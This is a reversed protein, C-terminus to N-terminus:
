YKSSYIGWGYSIFAIIFSFAMLLSYIAMQTSVFIAGNIGASLIALGGILSAFIWSRDKQSISRFILSLASLLLFIGVIIHLALPIQTWAFAYLQGNTKHTPFTVFLNTIMGLTYQIILFIILFIGQVKLPNIDKM